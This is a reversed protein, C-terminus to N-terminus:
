ITIANTAGIVNGQADLALVRYTYTKGEELFTDNYVWPSSVTSADVTGATAPVGGCRQFGGM